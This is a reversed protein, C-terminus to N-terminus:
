ERERRDARRHKVYELAAKVKDYEQLKGIGIPGEETAARRDIWVECEVTDEDDLNVYVTLTTPVTIEVVRRDESYIRAEFDETEWIRTISM